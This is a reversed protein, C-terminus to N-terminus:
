VVGYTLAADIDRFNAHNFINYVEWRFQLERKEGMKIKKFLALDNNFISPMRVGNRPSNGIDGLRTANAFCGPNVVFGTGTSDAGSIGSMPDCIVNPRANIQGGTIDTIMTCVTASTQFTGPPCVQGATITATGTTYTVTINKPKGSAYSTTGSIQYDDFLLKVLKNNWHRSLRPIDYIYNVTLIDTQDFDSP